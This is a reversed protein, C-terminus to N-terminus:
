LQFTKLRLAMILALHQWPIHHNSRWVFYACEMASFKHETKRCIDAVDKSNIFEYVDIKTSMM